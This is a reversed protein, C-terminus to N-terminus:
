EVENPLTSFDIGTAACLDRWSLQGLYRDLLVETAREGLHPAAAALEDESPEEVSVETALLVYGPKGPMAQGVLDLNRTLQDRRPFWATVKSLKETRKGEVFLVLNETELWCDVKTIGEFAWWQRASRAPTRAALETLAQDQAAPDGDRLRERRETTEAGFEGASGRPWHLAEPHKILWELFAASPRAEHEFCSRRLPPRPETLSPELRGPQGLPEQPQVDRRRPAADLLLTLWSKGSPDRDLLQNFFPQVRTLSSDKSGM